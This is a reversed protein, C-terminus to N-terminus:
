LWSNCGRSLSLSSAGLDVRPWERGDSAADADRPLWPSCDEPAVRLCALVATEGLLSCASLFAAELTDDTIVVRAELIAEAESLMVLLLMFEVFGSLDHRPAACFGSTRPADGKLLVGDEEMAALRGPMGPDQWLAAGEGRPTRSPDM